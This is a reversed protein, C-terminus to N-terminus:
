IIAATIDEWSFRYTLRLKMLVIMSNAGIMM